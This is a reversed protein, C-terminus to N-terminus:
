PLDMPGRYDPGHGELRLRDGDALRLGKGIKPGKHAAAQFRREIGVLDYASLFAAVGPRARLAELEELIPRRLYPRWALEDAARDLEQRAELTHLTACKGCIIVAGPRLSGDGPDDPSALRDSTGCTLCALEPLSL